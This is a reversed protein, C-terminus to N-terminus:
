GGLDKLRRELKAIQGESILNRKWDRRGELDEIEMATEPDVNPGKRAAQIQLKGLRRKLDSIQIRLTEREVERDDDQDVETPAPVPATGPFTEAWAKPRRQACVAKLEELRMQRQCYIVMERAKAPKTTGPVDQDDIGLEFCLDRLDDENFHAVLFDRLAIQSVQATGASTAAKPTVPESKGASTAGTRGDRGTAVPSHAQADGDADTSSQVPGPPMRTAPPMEFLKGDPARTYAVPIGWNANDIGTNFLVAKRGETLCADIPFGEVLARYFEVAFYRAAEQLVPFQMAVVAPVQARMLAPAISRFPDLALRGSECSDLVILRVGSRRLMIGLEQAGVPSMGGGEKEFQLRAATGPANMAGHGVFHWIHFGARLRGQLKQPTLHEEVTIEVHSGLARLADHVEGLERQINTATPDGGARLANTPAPTQAGTLLVKLPLEARLEASGQPLPLYRVIPMDLLALHGQDPDYLFEWPLAAVEQESAAINFVIRLGQDDKLRGQSGAFVQKIKEQFLADFLLQGLEALMQEHTELATLRQALDQYTSNSTPLKLTGRAQGGPSDVSFPYPGGPPAPEITIEFEAYDRFM